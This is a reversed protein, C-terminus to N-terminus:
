WDNKVKTLADHEVSTGSVMNLGQIGDSTMEILYRNKFKETVNLMSRLM